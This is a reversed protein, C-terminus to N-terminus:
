ELGNTSHVAQSHVQLAVEIVFIGLGNECMLLKAKDNIKLM